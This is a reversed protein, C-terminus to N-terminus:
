RENFRKRGEIWSRFDDPSIDLFRSSSVVMEPTDEGYKATFYWWVRDYTQPHKLDEADLKVDMQNVIYFYMNHLVITQTLDEFEQKGFSTSNIREIAGDFYSRVFQAMKLYDALVSKRDRNGFLCNNSGAIARTNNGEETLILGDNTDFLSM